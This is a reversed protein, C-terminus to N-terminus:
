SPPIYMIYYCSMVPPLNSHALGGGKVGITTSVSIGTTQSAKTDIGDENKTYLNYVTYPTASTDFNFNIIPSVSKPSYHGITVLGEDGGFLHRHGHDTVVSPSTHDHSPMNAIGLTVMNSGETEEPFEYEPNGPTLPDIETDMSGGMSTCGIPIRGKKDPTGHEGNCLYVYEWAGYGTGDISFGDAVTPNGSLPGYYEVAVYPVMKNYMKDTDLTDLYAQIRSNLETIKVYGNLASQLTLVSQYVSCLKTITAQLVAHTNSSSTVGSLCSVTYDAELATLQGEIDNIDSQLECVAASLAILINVLNIDGSPLNKSILSCLYQSPIIPEIGTGSLVTVLYSFIKEEVESLPAGTDIDWQTVPSGTYKVCRDSVISSCGNFCGECSSM